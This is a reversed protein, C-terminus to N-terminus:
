PPSPLYRELRLLRERPLTTSFFSITLNPALIQCAEPEITKCVYATGCRPGSDFIGEPPPYRALTNNTTRRTLFRTLTRSSVRQRPWNQGSRNSLPGLISPTSPFHHRLSLHAILPLPYTPSLLGFTEPLSHSQPDPKPPQTQRPPNPPAAPPTSAPTRIPTPPTGGQGRTARPPTALPHPM